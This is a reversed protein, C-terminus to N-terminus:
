TLAWSPDSGPFNSIPVEFKSASAPKQAQMWYMEDNAAPSGSRSM